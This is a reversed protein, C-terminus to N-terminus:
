KVALTASTGPASMSQAIQTEAKSKPLSRATRYGAWQVESLFHHNGYVRFVLRSNASALANPRDITTIVSFAAKGRGDSISLASGHAGLWVTYTGAPLMKNGVQFEFPITVQLGTSQAHVPPTATLLLTVAAAFFAAWRSTSYKM